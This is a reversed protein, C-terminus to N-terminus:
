IMKEPLGIRSIFQSFRQSLKEKFLDDLSCLKSDINKYLLDRNITFFHKFDVILEPMDNESFNLYHYRPIENDM